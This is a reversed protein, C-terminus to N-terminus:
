VLKQEERADIGYQRMKTKSVGRKLNSSKIAKKIVFAFVQM